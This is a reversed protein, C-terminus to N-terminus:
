RGSGGKAMDTPDNPDRTELKLLEPHEIVLGHAMALAWTVCVDDKLVDDYAEDELLQACRVRHAERRFEKAKADDEADAHRTAPAQAYAEPTARPARWERPAGIDATEFWAGVGLLMVAVAATGAVKATM